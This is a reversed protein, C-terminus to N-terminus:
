LYSNLKSRYRNMWIILVISRWLLSANQQKGVRHQELINILLSANLFRGWDKKANEFLALAYEYLTSQLWESMPTGFSNKRGRLIESPILDGIVERFYSKTLGNRLKYSSPLRMVYDVLENDLLPVRAEISHLMNVKDVKELYTYPLIVQMDTYLMSQLPDLHLLGEAIEHYTRYPNCKSLKFSWNEQFIEIPDIPLYNTVLRAMRDAKNSANLAWSRQQMATRRRKTPALVSLILSGIKRSSLQTLDLHRGYGAFLEDGGDGQLVVKTHNTNQQAMLHLPIIAADAFPEDYQYVLKELDDELSDATVQFEHHNTNYRQAVLRALSLESKPNKDFSVSYTNLKGTTYRSALAVLISSDIGGSLYAGVPVDSICQREVSKELLVRTRKKSEEYSDRVPSNGLIDKNVSWFKDLQFKGTELDLKLVTAPPLKKIGTVLTEDSISNGFWLFEHLSQFNLEFNNIYNMIVKAESAFAFFESTEIYYLPKVGLRDRSLILSNRKQDYHAFAFIGNLDPIVSLGYRALLKYLVETDSQTFQDIQFQKALNKYNYIEGNYVLQNESGAVSYPQNARLSLDIISLRYHYLFLNKDRYRGFNDPGRHAMLEVSKQFEKVEESKPESKFAIGAIGCM